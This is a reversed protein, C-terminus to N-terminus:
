REEDNVGIVVRAGFDRECEDTAALLSVRLVDAIQALVWMGCSTSSTQLATTSTPIAAWETDGLNMEHGNVSAAHYLQGLLLGINKIDEKWPAKHGLSDFLLINRHRPYVVCLVWHEAPLKRHIPIIWVTKEFYRLAKNRAWIYHSSLYGAGEFLFSSFLACDSALERWPSATSAFLNQLLTGAANLCTSTLRANPDSLIDLSQSDFEVTGFATKLKKPRHHYMSGGEKHSLWLNLSAVPTAVSNLSEPVRWHLKVTYEPAQSVAVEADFAEEELAEQATVEAENLPDVPEQLDTDSSEGADASGTTHPQGPPEDDITVVQPDNIDVAAMRQEDVWVFTNRPRDYGLASLIDKSHEIKSEFLKEGAFSTAWRSKLRYLQHKRAELRTRILIDLNIDTQPQLLAVEIRKLEEGYWRCLGDAEKGLRKLEEDCRDLKLMARIGERVGADELWEPIKGLSRTTWVDEWLGSAPARLETFDLPLPSPTPIKYEPKNLITLDAVFNNYTEIATILAPKRKQIAKITLQHLNTGKSANKLTELAQAKGGSARHLKDYEFFSAVARKRINFKLDRMLLLTRVFRYPLARLEPCMTEVNMSAYLAEMSEVKAQRMRNAINAAEVSTKSKPDKVLDKAVSELLYNVRDVEGHLKLVADLENGLQGPKFSRISMQAEKQEKWLQRLRPISRNSQKIIAKSEAKYKQITKQRRKIWSGLDDRLDGAIAYTMRDFMWIRRSRLQVSRHLVCAVDYFVAATATEPLCSFLKKILAVAYKQQEGPTDVNILFLPIDHRCVMAMTGTDDYKDAQTKPKSGDAAIHGNECEDIADDPVTPIHVRPPKEKAVEIDVGVRNVEATPLYFLPNHFKPCDGKKRLHRHSWCGDVSVHVDCGEDFTAGWKKRGFCAPCLQQLYWYQLSSPLPGSSKGEGGKPQTDGTTASDQSPGKPATGTGEENGSQVERSIKSLEEAGTDVAMTQVANELELETEQGTLTRGEFQGSNIQEIKDDAIKLALNLAEEVSMLLNDYWLMANGVGRRFADQVLEGKSNIMPFGRRVYHSHLAGSIANVAECAKEWQARYLALLNIEVAMRPMSPSCPFLGNRILVQCITECACYQVAHKEWCDAYLGVVEVTRQICQGPEKSCDHRLNDERSLKKGFTQTDYQLFPTCIDNITNSWSQFLRNKDDLDSHQSREKQSKTPNSSTQDGLDEQAPSMDDDLHNSAPCDDLDLDGGVDMPEGEWDSDGDQEVATDKQNLLRVDDGLLAAEGANLSELLSQLRLRRADYGVAAVVLKTKRDNRKKTPSRYVNGISGAHVQSKRAKSSATTVM